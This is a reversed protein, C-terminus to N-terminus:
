QSRYMSFLQHLYISVRSAETSATYLQHLYISVRRAGTCVSSSICTCASGAPEQVYQLASAPVHQGQQSRDVVLEAESGLRCILVQINQQSLAHYAKKICMYVSYRLPLNDIFM